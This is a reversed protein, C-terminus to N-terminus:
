AEGLIKKAIIEGSEYISSKVSGYTLEKVSEIQGDIVQMMKPGVKIVYEERKGPKQKQKM